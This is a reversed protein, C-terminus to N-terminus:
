MGQSDEPMAVAPIKVHSSLNTSDDCIERCYTCVHVNVCKWMWKGFRTMRLMRLPAYRMENCPAFSVRRKSHVYSLCLLLEWSHVHVYTKVVWTDVCHSNCYACTRWMWVLLQVLMAHFVVLVLQLSNLVLGQCTNSYPHLLFVSSIYDSLLEGPCCAPITRWSYPFLRSSLHICTVQLVSIRSRSYRKMSIASLDENSSRCQFVICSFM